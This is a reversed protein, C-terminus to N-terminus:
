AVPSSSSSRAASPRSAAAAVLPAHHHRRHAQHSPRHHTTMPQGDVTTDGGIAFSGIFQAVIPTVLTFTTQPSARALLDNSRCLRDTSRGHTTGNPRDARVDATTTITRPWPRGVFRGGAVAIVCNRRADPRRLGALAPQRGIRRARRRSGRQELANATYVYRGIDIIGFLLIAFIPLVLAFEVLAQGRTEDVQTMADDDAHGDHDLERARVRVGAPEPDADHANPQGSWRQANGRQVRRAAWAAQVTAKNLGILNPVTRNARRHVGRGARHGDGHREGDAVVNTATASSPTTPRGGALRVLLDGLVPVDVHM